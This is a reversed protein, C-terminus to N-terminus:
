CIGSQLILIKFLPYYTQLSQDLIIKGEEVLQLIVTTTGVVKTLSAVDFLM